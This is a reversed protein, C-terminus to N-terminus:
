SGMPFELNTEIAPEMSIDEELDGPAVAKSTSAIPAAKPPTRKHGSISGQQDEQKSSGSSRPSTASSRGSTGRAGLIESAKKLARKVVPSENKLPDTTEKKLENQNSDPQEGEVAKNSEEM